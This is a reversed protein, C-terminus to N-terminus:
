GAEEVAWATILALQDPPWRSSAALWKWSCAITQGMDIGEYAVSKKALNKSIKSIDGGQNGVLETFAEHVRHTVRAPQLERRTKRADLFIGRGSLGVANLARVKLRAVTLLAPTDFILEATSGGNRGAIPVIISRSM